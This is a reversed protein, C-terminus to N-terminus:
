SRPSNRESHHSGEQSGPGQSRRQCGIGSGTGAPDPVPHSGWRRLRYRPCEGAQHRGHPPQRCPRRALNRLGGKAHGHLQHNKQPGYEPVHAQSRGQGPRPCDVLLGRPDGGPRRVHLGSDRDYPHDRIGQGYGLRALLPHHGHHPHHHQRRLHRHLGERLGGPHRSGGIKGGAIGRAPARLHPRQCGRGGRHHPHHRRNGAPHLHVRVHGDGRFPHARKYYSWHPRHIGRYPLLHHSVRPHTRSRLHGRLDGPQGHCCRPACHGDIGEPDQPPEGPPEHPHRLSKPM